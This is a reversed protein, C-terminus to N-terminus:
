RVPTQEQLRQQDYFRQDLAASYHKAKKNGYDVYAKNALTRANELDGIVEYAVALNLCIRAADKKSKAKPLANKWTEIAGEWDNVEAQRVGSAVLPTTKGKKYYQRSLWVPTPAIKRAYSEGAMRSIQKIAEGRIILKALAEQLTSASANWTRSMRVQQQDVITKNKPDYLRFGILINAVGEAHYEVQQVKKKVGNETIEKEVTKQANTVIFDTDYIEIAMVANANYKGCLNDIDSWALPNPFASTISNGPYVEYANKIVYRNSTGLINQLADMTEQTGAKDEGPLEGTLISEVVGIARSDFYTRNLVLLTDIHLPVNIDAPRVVTFSVTRMKCSSFVLLLALSVIFAATTYKNKM